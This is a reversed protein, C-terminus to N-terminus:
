ESGPGGTSSPGTGTERGPDPSAGGPPPPGAATSTGASQGGTPHAVTSRPPAATTSAATGVPRAGEDAAEHSVTPQGRFRGLGASPSDAGSPRPFFLMYLGAALVAGVLPALIFVWVQGIWPSGAVAAPGLSRAPNVSAGDIPIGMVNVLALALGVVAGAIPVNAAKRTAALVVGVFVATLIVEALFAGGASIHILSQNGYGNAGLGNRSRVYFPSAHFVWLLLLAGIIGGVIQAVWYTVADVISLRRTLLAGLTVAPNVHCGSIPGILAVLAALVLGFTLGTTLMGAAISSGAAGFGTGFVVTAVGAGFFVLMATGILEAAAKRALAADITVARGAGQAQGQAATSRLAM